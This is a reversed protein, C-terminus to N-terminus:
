QETLVSAIDASVAESVADTGGLVYATGNRVFEHTSKIWNLADHNVSTDPSVLLLPAAKRGALVGGALADPFNEGTAFVPTAPRLDSYAFKAIELSTQYRTAGGLRVINSESVGAGKLQAIVSNPVAASGGAIVIKTFGYGKIDKITSADLGTKGSLFVPYKNKQAYASISLADTFNEGTAIIATDDQWNAGVQKKAQAFIENATDRRTDGSIRVVKADRAVRKEIQNVVSDSVASEGGIVVVKKPKLRSIQGDARASLRYSNTLIVPADALGSFGSAALADPFNDGSAVIVTDKSIDNYAEEVIEGMTDYRDNGSLRQIVSRFQMVQGSYHGLKVNNQTSVDTDFKFWVDSDSAPAPWTVKSNDPALVGNPSQGTIKAYVRGIKLGDLVWDAKKNFEHDPKLTIDQNDASLGSEALSVNGLLPTIDKIQNNDLTLSGLATLKRLPTVDSIKNDKLNLTTLKKLGGLASIDTLKQKQLSLTTLNKFSGVASLGDIFQSGNGDVKLTKLNNKKGLQSLGYVIPNGSLDLSELKDLGSLENLDRLGDSTLTLSKANKFTGLGALDLDEM